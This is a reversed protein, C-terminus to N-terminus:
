LRQISKIIIMDDLMQNSNKLSHIREVVGMGKVVKGFAAFGQGDKNRKGGYDLEPQEGVCIFFESSATGVELRAMSITGNQHMIGTEKTTEHIIPQLAEVLADHFLGGQIVEIKISNHSQNDQTVVRYFVAGDYKKEDVLKLFNSATVPAKNEFVEVVIRGESTKIEVQPNTNCGFLLITTVVLLVNRM